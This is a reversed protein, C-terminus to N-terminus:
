KHHANIDGDEEKISKLSPRHQRKKSYISGAVQEYKPTRQLPLHNRVQRVDQSANKVASQYVVAEVPQVMECDEDSSSDSSSESLLSNTYSTLTVTNHLSPKTLMLPSQMNEVESDSSSDDRLSPKPDEPNTLNLIPQSSSLLTTSEDDSNGDDSDVEVQTFAHSGMSSKLNDKKPLKKLTSHEVVQLYRKRRDAVTEWLHTDKAVSDTAVTSTKNVIPDITVINAVSDQASSNTSLTDSKSYTIIDRTIDDSTNEQKVSQSTTNSTPEENMVVGSDPTVTRPSETSICSTNDEQLSSTEISPMLTPKTQDPNGNSTDTQQSDTVGDIQEVNDTIHDTGENTVTITQEQQQSLLPSEKQKLAPKLNRSSLSSSPKTALDGTSSSVKNKSWRPSNRPTHLDYFEIVKENSLDDLKKAKAQLGTKSFTVKPLQAESRSRSTPNEFLAEDLKLTQFDNESESYNMAHVYNQSAYLDDNSGDKTMDENSRWLTSDRLDRHM